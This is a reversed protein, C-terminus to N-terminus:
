NVYTKGEFEIGGRVWCGNRGHKTWGAKSAVKEIRGTAIGTVDHLKRYSAQRDNEIAASLRETEDQEAKPAPEDLLKFDGIQDIFPRGQINFPPVPEFDRPKVCGVQIEVRDRDVVRLGYVADCMAGLDGTGRLVNELSMEQKASSKPSHHLGVIAQAGSNLLNFVGSALGNANESASNESEVQAFRVMTDLFVIPKLDRVAALLLPADLKPPVGDKMTRCFFRKDVGMKDMRGRFSREGAEPVLYIVNSPELIDFRGLFKRGTTLAKAMSLAFWTKGAGSLAGLLCVGEPLFGQILFKIEGPDMESRVKFLGRWAPPRNLADQRLQQVRERFKDLTQAYIEGIDKPEAGGKRYEWRVRFVKHPPLVTEFAAACKEGADDMDTAIFVREAHALKEIHEPKIRLQGDKLCTTASSVSVASFGHCRMTLCDLESEVVYVEPTAVFVQNDPNLQEIGYLLDSSESGTLHRFKDGKAQPNLARFKVVSATYPISIATGISPHEVVGVGHHVAFPRDIGRSKLYEGANDNLKLAEVALV